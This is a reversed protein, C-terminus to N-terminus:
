PKHGASATAERPLKRETEARLEKARVGAPSDPDLRIYNDLDRMLGLYDMEQMHVLALLRYVVPQAPALSEAKEASTLAPKLNGRSLELKGLEFQGPWSEPNLALGQRLFTEGDTNERHRLLLTGLAIDAEAYAKQSIEVSKRFQVEADDERQLNLYALGAQYYAEYYNPAKRTASEFDTLAGAADKDKYLKKRGSEMLERAVEPMSLEHVSITPREPVASGAKEVPKLTISVGRDSSLSLDEHAEQNEFGDAHVRLLYHQARVGRFFFEGGTNTRTEGLREGSDDCLEVTANEVRQHSGDAFVTGTLSYGANRGIQASGPTGVLWLLACLVVGLVFHLRGM